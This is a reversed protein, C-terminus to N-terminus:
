AAEPEPVAPLPYRAKIAEVAAMWATYDPATGHVLSDYDAENKLPDSEAAYARRRLEQLQELTLPVPEPTVWEDGAWVQGVEPERTTFGEPIDFVRVTKPEGTAISYIKREPPIVGEEILVDEPKPAWNIDYYRIDESVFVFSDPVEIFGDPCEVADVVEVIIGNDIKLRLM